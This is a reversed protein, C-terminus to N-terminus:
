ERDNEEKWENLRETNINEYGKGVGKYLKELLAKDAPDNSDLKGDKIVESLVYEHWNNGSLLQAPASLVFDTANEVTSLVNGLFTGVNEAGGLISGDTNYSGYGKSLFKDVLRAKDKWDLLSVDYMEKAIADRNKGEGLFFSDLEAIRNRM